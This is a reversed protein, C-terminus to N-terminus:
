EPRIAFLQVWRHGYAGVYVGNPDGYPLWRDTVGFRNLAVRGIEVGANLDFVGMSSRDEAIILLMSREPIFTMRRRGGFASAPLITMVELSPVDYIVVRKETGGRSQCVIWHNNRWDAFHSGARWGDELEKQRVLSVGGDDISYVSLEGSTRSTWRVLYKGVALLNGGVHFPIEYPGEISSTELDLFSVSTQGNEYDRRHLLVRRGDVVQPFDTFRLRDDGSILRPEDRELDVVVVGGGAIGDHNGNYNGDFLLDFLSLPKTYRFQSTLFIQGRKLDFISSGQRSGAVNLTDTMDPKGPVRSWRVERGSKLDITHIGVARGYGFGPWLRRHVHLVHSESDVAINSVAPSHEVQIEILTYNGFTNSYVLDLRDANAESIAETPTFKAQACGFQLGILILTTAALPAPRRTQM